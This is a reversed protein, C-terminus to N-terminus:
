KIEIFDLEGATMDPVMLYQGDVTLAIDAAAKYGEKIVRSKGAVLEYVKGAKWDSIIIKGAKTKVMGDGGGFGTGIKTTAGTSLNVRYLIGSEFDVSLLNNRGEFLLGNPALIDPNKSDAVVTIPSGGKAIKYIQGGSKLDGSDSVYLNGLKDAEIDNLFVPTGPFAMQAGYVQWTGDKSVELVRNKDAVYLKDGFIVLGKPDDMGKAFVTVNGKKDVKSIQGDGDKGFEVIESIYISGDKGQVVSEPTKLGTIKTPLESKAYISTTHILAIVLLIKKM